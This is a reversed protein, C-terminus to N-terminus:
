FSNNSVLTRTGSTGRATESGAVADSRAVDAAAPDAAAADAAAEEKLKLGQSSGTSGSGIAPDPVERKAAMAVISTLTSLPLPRTSLPPRRVSAPQLPNSLGPQLLQPLPDNPQLAHSMEHWDPVSQLNLELRRNECLSDLFSKFDAVVDESTLPRPAFGLLSECQEACHRALRAAFAARATWLQFEVAANSFDIHDPQDPLTALPESRPSQVEAKAEDAPPSAKIGTAAESQSTATLADGDPKNALKTAPLIPPPPTPETPPPPSKNADSKNLDSPQSQGDAVVKTPPSSISLKAPPPRLSGSQQHGTIKNSASTSSRSEALKPQTPAMPAAVAHVPAAASSQLATQSPVRPPCAPVPVPAQSPVPPSGAVPSQTKITTTPVAPAAVPAPAVQPPVTPEPPGKFDGKGLGKGKAVDEEDGKFDGKGPGKGKAVGEENGKFDGKFDGKGPGKGKAGEEDSESDGKGPGKGKFEGKAHGKAHGKSDGKSEESHRQSQSRYRYREDRRHSRLM